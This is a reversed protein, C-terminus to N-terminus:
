LMSDIEKAARGVVSPSENAFKIRRRWSLIIVAVLSILRLSCLAAATIVQGCFRSCEQFCVLLFLLNFYCMCPLSHTSIM